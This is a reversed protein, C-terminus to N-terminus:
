LSAEQLIAESKDNHARDHKRALALLSAMAARSTHMLRAM